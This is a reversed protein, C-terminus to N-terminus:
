AAFPAATMLASEIDNTPIGRAAAYAFPHDFVETASDHPLVRSPSPM